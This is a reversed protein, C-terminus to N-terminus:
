ANYVLSLRQAGEDWFGKYDKEIRQLYQHLRKGQEDRTDGLNDPFSDLHSYLIHIKLSM